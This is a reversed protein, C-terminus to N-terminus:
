GNAKAPQKAGCTGVSPGIRLSLGRTSKLAKFACTLAQRALATKELVIPLAGMFAGGHPASECDKYERKEALQGCLADPM